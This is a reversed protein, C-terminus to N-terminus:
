VVVLRYKSSENWENEFTEHLMSEIMFFRDYKFLITYHCCYINSILSTILLFPNDHFLVKNFKLYM